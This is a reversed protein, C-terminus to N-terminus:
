KHKEATILVYDLAARAQSDTVETLLTRADTSIEMLEASAADLSNYWKAFRALITATQFEPSNKEALGGFIPLYASRDNVTLDVAAFRKESPILTIEYLIVNSTGDALTHLEPYKGRVTSSALLQIVSVHPADLILRADIQPSVGNKKLDRIVVMLLSKESDWACMGLEASVGVGELRVKSDSEYLPTNVWEELRITAQDNKMLALLDCKGVVPIRVSTRQTVTVLEDSVPAVEKWLEQPDRSDQAVPVGEREGNGSAALDSATVGRSVQNSAPIKGAIVPSVDVSLKSLLLVGFSVVAAVGGIVAFSQFRSRRRNVLLIAESDPRKVSQFIEDRREDGLTFSKRCDLTALLGTLKQIKMFESRLLIDSALAREVTISESSSLEGLAYATLRPDDPTIKM